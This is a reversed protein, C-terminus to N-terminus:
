PRSGDDGGAVTAFPSGNSGVISANAAGAADKAGSAVSAAQAAGWLRYFESVTKPTPAAAGRKASQAGNTPSADQEAAPTPSLSDVSTPTTPLSGLSKRIAALSGPAPDRTPQANKTAWISSAGGTRAVGLTSPRAQPSSKETGNPHAFDRQQFQTLIEAVPRQQEEVIQISPTQVRLSQQRMMPRKSTEQQQHQQQEVDNKQQQQQVFQGNQFRDVMRRIGSPGTSGIELRIQEQKDPEFATYAKPKFPSTPDNLPTRVHVDRGGGVGSVSCASGSSLRNAAIRKDLELQFSERQRLKPQEQVQELEKAQAEVARGSYNRIANAMADNVMESSLVSSGRRVVSESNGADAAYQELEMGDEEEDDEAHSTGDGLTAAMSRASDVAEGTEQIDLTGLPTGLGVGGVSSSLRSSSDDGAPGVIIGGIGHPPLALAMEGYELSDKHALLHVSYQEDEEDDDYDVGLQVEETNPDRPTQQRDRLSRRTLEPTQDGGVAMRASNLPSPTMAVLSNPTAADGGGDGRTPSPAFRVEPLRIPEFIANILAADDHEDSSMKGNASAALIQINGNQYM